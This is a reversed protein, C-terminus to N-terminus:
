QRGAYMYPVLHPPCPLARGRTTNSLRTKKDKKGWNDVRCGWRMPDECAAVQLQACSLFLVTASYTFQIYLVCCPQFHGLPGSGSLPQLVQGVHCSSFSTLALFYGQIRQSGFIGFAMCSLFHAKHSVLFRGPNLKKEKGTPLCFPPFRSKSSVRVLAALLYIQAEVCMAELYDGESALSLCIFCYEAIPSRVGSSTASPISYLLYPRM